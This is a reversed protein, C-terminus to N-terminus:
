RWHVEVRRIRHNIANDDYGLLGAVEAPKATGAGTVALTFEIADCDLHIDLLYPRIDVTRAQKKGFAPREVDLTDTALVESIRAELDAPRLDGPDLRYRVRTPHLREGPQLLRAHTVKLGAPTQRELASLATAPEIEGDFEVVLMEAESAVGVPRPLPIMMRPHPNFGRTFSVPLTARALARQFLRLTDQHSIFRLDGSITYGFACRCRYAQIHAPGRLTPDMRRVPKESERESM